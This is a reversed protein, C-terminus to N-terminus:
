KHIYTYVYTHMYLCTKIFNEIPNISHTHSNTPNTNSNIMKTNFNISNTHFNTSKTNNNICLHTCTNLNIRNINLNPLKDLGIEYNEM